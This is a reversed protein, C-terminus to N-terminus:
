GPREGEYAQIARALARRWGGWEELSRHLGDIWGTAMESGVPYLSLSKKAAVLAKLFLVLLQPNGM